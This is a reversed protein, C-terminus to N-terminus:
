TFAADTLEKMWEFDEPYGDIFMTGSDVGKGGHQNYLLPDLNDILDQKSAYYFKVKDPYMALFIMMEYDQKIRIQQWRFKTLLGKNDMWLTSGKIEIKKDNVIIDHDANKRKDVKINYSFKEIYEETLKEFFAGKSRSSLIKASYFPTGLYPDNKSKNELDKVCFYKSYEEPSIM